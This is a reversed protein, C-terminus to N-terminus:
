GALRLRARRAQERQQRRENAKERGRALGARQADTVPRPERQLPLAGVWFTSRWCCAELTSQAWDILDILVRNGRRTPYTQQIRQLQDLRGAKGGAWEQITRGTQNVVQVCGVVVNQAQWSDETRWKAALHKVAWKRCERLNQVLIKVDM